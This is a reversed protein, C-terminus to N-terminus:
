RHRPAAPWWRTPRGSEVPRSDTGFFTAAAVIAILGLVMVLEV